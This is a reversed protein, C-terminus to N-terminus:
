QSRKLAVKPAAGRSFNQARATESAYKQSGQVIPTGSMTRMEISRYNDGHM